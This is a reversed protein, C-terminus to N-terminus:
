CVPSALIEAPAGDIYTGRSNITFTIVGADGQETRYAVTASSSDPGFEARAVSWSGTVVIRNYEDAGPDYGYDDPDGTPPSTFTFTSEYRFRGGPCLDAARDVGSHTSSGGSYTVFRRGQILNTAKAIADEKTKEIAKEKAKARAKAKAKARAKAKAKARARAKARAKAKAKTSPKPKGTAQHAKAQQGGAASATPTIGTAALLAVLMAIAKTNNM